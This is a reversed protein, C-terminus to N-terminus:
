LYIKINRLMNSNNIMNQGARDDDFNIGIVSSRQTNAKIDIKIVNEIQGDILRDTADINATLM